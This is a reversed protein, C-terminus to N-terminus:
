GPAAAALANAPCDVALPELGLLRPGANGCGCNEETLRATLGTGLRIVPYRHGTLCTLILESRSNQEITANDEVVHLGEHAECEWALLSGDLGLYQEFVPVEFARWLSERDAESLVGHEPGSFAVIARKLTPISERGNRASRAVQM